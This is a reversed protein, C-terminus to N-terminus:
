RRDFDSASEPAVAAPSFVSRGEYSNAGNYRPLPSGDTAIPNAPTPNSPSPITPAYSQAQAVSAAGLVLGAAAVLTAITKM